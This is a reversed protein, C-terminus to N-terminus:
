LMPHLFRKKEKVSPRRQLHRKGKRETCWSGCFMGGNHRFYGFRHKIADRYSKELPDIYGKEWHRHKCKACRKPVPGEKGNVRNIWKYGCLECTYENVEVRAIGM